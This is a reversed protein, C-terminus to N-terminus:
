YDIWPVLKKARNKDNKVSPLHKAVDVFRHNVDIWELLGNEGDQMIRNMWPWETMLLYQRQMYSRDVAEGHYFHFIDVDVLYMLSKSTMACINRTLGYVKSRKVLWYWPHKGINFLENWWLSDGGGLPLFNFGGIMYLVFKNICYVGGPNCTPSEVHRWKIM